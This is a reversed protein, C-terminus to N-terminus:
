HLEVHEKLKITLLIGGELGSPQRAEKPPSEMGSVARYTCCPWIQRATSTHLEQIRGSVACGDMDFLVGPLEVPRPLEELSAPFYQLLLACAGVAGRNGVRGRVQHLRRCDHKGQRSVVVLSKPLSFGRSSFLPAPSRKM